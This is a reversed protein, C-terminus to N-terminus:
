VKEKLGRWWSGSDMKKLKAHLQRASKTRLKKGARALWDWADKYGRDYYERAALSVDLYDADKTIADEAALAAFVEGGVAKPLRGCQEKEVRRELAKPTKQYRSSIKHKDLLRAEHVDHFLAGVVVREPAPHKELKALVYAIAATRFSHEALSEPDRIKAVWWGSRKVLRMQGLEYFYKVLNAAEADNM